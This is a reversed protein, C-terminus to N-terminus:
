QFNVKNFSYLISQQAGVFNYFDLICGSMTLILFIYPLVFYNEKTNAQTSIGGLLKKKDRWASFFKVLGGLCVFLGPLQLIKWM